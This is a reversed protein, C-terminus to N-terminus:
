ASVERLAKALSRVCRQCPSLAALSFGRASGGSWAEILCRMATEDYAGARCLTYGERGRGKASPYTRPAALDNSIHRIRRSWTTCWEFGDPMPMGAHWTESMENEESM